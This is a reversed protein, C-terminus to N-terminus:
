DIIKYKKGKNYLTQRTIGLQQATLSINGRNRALVKKIVHMEIQELTEDEMFAAPFTNTNEMNNGTNGMGTNSCANESLSPFCRIGAEDTDCLIVAKEVTIALESVNGDWRYDTMSESAKASFGKIKKGYKSCYKELFITALPVIDEKRNRLPPIPIQFINIQNYLEEMFEGHLVMTEINAATGFIFRASTNCSINDDIKSFSNSKIINLLLKQNDLDLRHINNIFLTGNGVLDLKGTRNRSGLLKEAFEEGNCNCVDIKMFFSRNNQSLFHLEKALLEKGCGCEGCLLVPTQSYAAKHVETYMKKMAPSIGWFYNGSEMLDERLNSIRAAEKKYHKAMIANKVSIILKDNNWPKPIYDFAGCKVGALAEDAQSFTSLLIIEMQPCIQKIRNIINQKSDTTASVASLDLLLLDAKTSNLFSYMADTGEVSTVKGFHKKLLIDLSTLLGNNPEVILIECSGYM